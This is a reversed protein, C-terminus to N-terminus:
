DGQIYVGSFSGSATTSDTAIGRLKIDTKEPFKLPSNFDKCVTSAGTNVGAVRNQTRWVKGQLRTALQLDLEKVTSGGGRNVSWCMQKLLFYYDNPVTWIAMMTQGHAISICGLGTTAWTDPIGDTGLSADIDLYINGTFESGVASTNYARFVRKWGSAEGVMAAATGSATASGLTASVTQEDWNEDLGAVDLTLGADDEHDSSVYLTINADSATHPYTVAAGIDPCDWMDELSADLDANEGFKELSTHGPLNGAGAADWFTMQVEGVTVMGLLAAVLIGFVLIYKTM